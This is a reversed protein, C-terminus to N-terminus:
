DSQQRSNVDKERLLIKLINTKEQDSLLVNISLPKIGAAQGTTVESFSETRRRTARFDYKRESVQRKGRERKKRLGSVRAAVVSRCLRWCLHAASQHSSVPPSRLRPSIISRTIHNQVTESLLHCCHELVESEIGM